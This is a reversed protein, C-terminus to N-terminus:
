VRLIVYEAVLWDWPSLHWGNGGPGHNVSYYDAPVLPKSSHIYGDTDSGRGYWTPFLIVKSGTPTTGTFVEDRPTIGHFKLPLQCNGSADPSIAGSNIDAIISEYGSIRSDLSHQVIGLASNFQFAYIAIAVLGLMLVVATALLLAKRNM